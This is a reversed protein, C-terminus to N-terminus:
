RTAPAPSSPAPQRVAISARGTAGARVLLGKPTVYIGDVAVSEVRARLTLAKGIRRNLGQELLARGRALVPSVAVRARERLLARLEDGKVWEVVRVLEDESTVDYDLDPVSITTRTSDLRPTGLLRLQGEADGAFGITLAIRGRTAPAAAASTIHVTRGMRTIARGRLADGLERSATPWDVEGDLLIRFGGETTDRGLPPLPSHAAGPMAGVVIRPLADLGGEVTLVRGDGTVRGVRLRQPRLELWVDDRLRIPRELAAWWGTARETLDIRHVLRDIQRMQGALAARAADVVRDTVDIRLLSVECRSGRVPALRVLRARSQLRWTSDVTIPTVLEVEIAPRPGRDGCGASMTPGVPPDYWGRAGYSLRARLHVLSDRMFTTFPGRTAAYAYRRREDTGLRRVDDMSGFTRPVAREVSRLVPTFDYDLPADFRSPTPPPPPPPAIVDDRAAAPDERSRDCAVALLLLAFVGRVLREIPLSRTPM